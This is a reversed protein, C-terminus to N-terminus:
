RVRVRVKGVVQYKGHRRQYIPWVTYKDRRSFSSTYLFMSPHLDPRKLWAALTHAVSVKLNRMAMLQAVSVQRQDSCDDPNSKSSSKRLEMERM